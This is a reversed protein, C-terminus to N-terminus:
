KDGIWCFIGGLYLRRGKRGVRGRFTIIGKRPVTKRDALASHLSHAESNFDVEIIFIRNEAYKEPECMQLHFNRSLFHCNVVLIAGGFRM